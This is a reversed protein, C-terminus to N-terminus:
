HLVLLTLSIGLSAILVYEVVIKASIDHHLAHHFIGWFAYFFATMVVAGAQLQPQRGSIVILTCGLILLFSLSAYYWVHSHLHQKM